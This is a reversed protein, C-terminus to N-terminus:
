YTLGEVYPVLLSHNNLGEGCKTGGTVPVTHLMAARYM